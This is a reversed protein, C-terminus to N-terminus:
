LLVNNLEALHLTFLEFFSFLIKWNLAQELLLFFQKSEMM